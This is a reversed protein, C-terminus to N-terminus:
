ILTGAAADRRPRTTTLPPNRANAGFLGSSSTARVNRRRPTAVPQARPVRGARQATQAVRGRADAEPEVDPADGPKAM